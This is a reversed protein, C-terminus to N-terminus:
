EVVVSAATAKSGEYQEIPLLYKGGKRGYWVTFKAYDRINGGYEVTRQVLYHHNARNLKADNGIRWQAICEPLNASLTLKQNGVAFPDVLVARQYTLMDDILVPDIDIGEKETFDLLFERVEDYFRGFDRSLRLLSAEEPPWTIDSFDPLIQDFGIGALVRDLVLDLEIIERGILTEPRETAYNLLGQYLDQYRVGYAYHLTIATGQLLGLTHFLQSGWGFHYMRRWDNRSMMNTEVVIDEREVVSDNPDAPISHLAFIPIEVTQIGHKAQYDPNGMEANPMVTCNYILIQSHQGNNLLDDIGDVFTEYTEGPLGLILETFTSVNAQNYRSQLDRFVSLDINDRRISQLVNDNLSQMSLSVGRLMGADHFITAVNFIKNTSNKTFCVRFDKPYGYKKKAAVLTNAIEIDRKRIGFNADACFIYRIKNASFWDIEENLRELDFEIVKSATASGWDCYTCSFPCGRNTEWIAMWEFDSHRKILNDFIGEIYPSPLETLQRMRTRAPTQVVKHTDPDRFSIGDIDGFSVNNKIAKLLEVFTKEGEGHVAIDVVPNNDLFAKDHKPDPVHPGGLIILANPNRRRVAEAVALSMRWNWVYCSVGLIDIKGIRDALLEPPECRFVTEGFKVAGALEETNRVMTELIGAVYPIYYQNSYSNNIQVLQVKLRNKM